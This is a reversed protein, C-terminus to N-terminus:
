QQVMQTWQVTSPLSSYRSNRGLQALIGEV